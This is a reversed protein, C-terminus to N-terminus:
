RAPPTWHKRAWAELTLLGPYLQRLRALDARYGRTNYWDFMLALEENFARVEDLPQSRFRGPLGSVRAFVQAMQPGTLQDGAIDITRGVYREPNEFAEAAFYGIDDTAITQLVTGADLPLALVLEGGEWGLGFMTFNDMFSPPRLVTVPLNLRAMHREIEGKSEFHRVGSPQDADVASGYVVHAIATRAAAEAVTIGQRVEGASGDPGTFTQVSYVGQADRMAAEVSAPDDLDGRALVAGAAALDQARPAQPDRVVARVKRGRRLLERTVAGGQRGTAGFVVFVRENETM